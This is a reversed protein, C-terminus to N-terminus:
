SSSRGPRYVPPSPRQSPQRSRQREHEGVERERQSQYAAQQAIPNIPAGQGGPPWLSDPDAASPGTQFHPEQPRPLPIPATVQLPVPATLETPAPAPEQYYTQQSFPTQAVPVPATVEM